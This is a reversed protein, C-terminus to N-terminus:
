AAESLPLPAAEDEGAEFACWCTKGASPELRLPEDFIAEEFGCHACCLVGPSRLLVAGCEPCHEWPRVYEGLSAKM